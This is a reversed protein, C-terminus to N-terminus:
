MVDHCGSVTIITLKVPGEQIYMRLNKKSNLSDTAESDSLPFCHVSFTLYLSSDLKVLCCVRVHVHISYFLTCSMCVIICQILGFHVLVNNYEKGPNTPNRHDRTDTSDWPLTAVSRRTICLFM